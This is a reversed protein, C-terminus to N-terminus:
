RKRDRFKEEYKSSRSTHSSYRKERSRDRRSRDYNASRHKETGSQKKDIRDGNSNGYDSKERERCCCLIIANYKAFLFHQLFTTYGYRKKSYKSPSSSPSRSYNRSKKKASSTSTYKTPSRSRRSKKYRPRNTDVPSLTRSLSRSSRSHSRKISDRM